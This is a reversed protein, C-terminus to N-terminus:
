PNNNKLYKAKAINHEELTESFITKGEPTSLYYLYDSSKYYVSALISEFGPNCIPGLPLGRYKYTNYSSDIQTEEKSIRTTKKGTIYTITADIQLPIGAALRKWLIGSVIKKDEITRVEKEILSAATIIEFITKDQKSIEERLELTLKEDFNDLAVRVIEEITAGKGIYYTDPFLYGELGLGKPKDKLFDYEQSFDQPNPLDTIKSYDIMPFGVLEFLEEAQFMGKNELHWGIDRLNWGEIITIKEKVTNGYVFKEIIESVTMSPSLLYEGAQLKKVRGTLFIYAKLSAKSRILGEKELNVSIEEIGEGRKILFLKETQFDSDKALYIGQFLYLVGFLFIFIIILFFRKKM